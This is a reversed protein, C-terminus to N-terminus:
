FDDRRNGGNTESGPNGNRSQDASNDGQYPKRRQEYNMGEFGIPAKNSKKGSERNNHSPGNRGEGRNSSEM